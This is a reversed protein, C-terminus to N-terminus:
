PGVAGSLSTATDAVVASFGATSVMGSNLSGFTALARMIDRVYSGTTSAGGSTAAANAGALIGVPQHQGAGTQVSARLGTLAAAPQSLAASFPSTGAANSSAIGLTAAITAASGAVGLNNVAAGIQTAFGSSLINDPDPVPPNQSDQGAFVYAGGDTTDLLGAVQVLASQADAAVADVNSPDLGNPNNTQAFFNSAIDSIQKLATQAVGMPGTVADINSSWTQQQAVASQLALASTAGGGLGAYANGILGNSAHETLRDLRQKTAASDAIVRGLLGDGAVGGGLSGISTGSM